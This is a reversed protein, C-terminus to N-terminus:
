DECKSKGEEAREPNKLKVDSGVFAKDVTFTYVSGIPYKVDVRLRDIPSLIDIEGAYTAEFNLKAYM